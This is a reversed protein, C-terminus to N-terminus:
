ASIPTKEVKEQANWEEVFKEMEEKARKFSEETGLAAQRGEVIKKLVGGSRILRSKTDLFNVEDAKIVYIYYPDKFAKSFAAM